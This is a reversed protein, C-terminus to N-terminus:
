NKSFLTISELHSTQPFMDIAANKDIKYGHQLLYESDRVLTAPNCSIYLIKQPQLRCLHPLAFLAGSRPPDLLVKDFPQAAWLHDSFTRDLDAQYFKVNGLQNAQANQTAQMVMDAVGEIGVVEAVKSALPLSFNGIGCFLDLVRDHPQLDLWELACDIMQQNLTRNVQIFNHVNFTLIQGNELQYYPTEGAWHQFQNHQECVFLQLQHQAAFQLLQTKDKEQIKGLHRLLMAVGNDAAVLEIHGLKAKNHWQHLWTHLQNLMHNLRPEAVMCQQIAVLHNSRRRRLGITLTKDQKNYHIGLHLRRRYHWSEASFIPQFAIHHQLRTLRQQLTHQKVQQQLSLPIHQMQCGGCKTYYGCKPQIRQASAQTIHQAIAHGYHRKEEILSAQVIEQPLANEVFWTKGALRAVGLGQYDLSEIIMQTKKPQIITKRENYFLAM